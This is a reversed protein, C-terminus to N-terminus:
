HIVVQRKLKMKTIRARRAQNRIAEMKSRAERPFLVGRADVRMRIYEQLVDELGRVCAARLAKKARAVADM